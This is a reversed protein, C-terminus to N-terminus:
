ISDREKERAREKEIQGGEELLCLNKRTAMKGKM